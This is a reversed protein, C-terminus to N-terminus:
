LLRESSECDGCDLFYTEGSKSVKANTSQCHGCSMKMATNTECKRCKIYYGYRGSLASYDSTEGCRKCKLLSTFKTHSSIYKPTKEEVLFEKEIREKPQMKAQSMLFETISTLENASFKPRTDSISLLRGVINKINMVQNLKDVLFESKVLQESVDKPMSERDIIANSSVVCINDWRRFGFYQQLGLVKTLIKHSNEFLIERLLRQQLEVQKIPSAMGSWKGNFSRAWEGFSNVKVEGTISKSEVLVFGFPYIILHDIQATEDNHTFKFDNIVFISPHDKFARRLYFAVNTEQDQGAKATPSITNKFIVDKLIM